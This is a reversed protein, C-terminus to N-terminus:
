LIRKQVTTKISALIKQFEELVMSIIDRSKCGTVIINGSQFILFTINNCVCKSNCFCKGSETQNLKYIFKVGSYKEPKYECLYNMETLKDYLRQRNIQYNLDFFINICNIDSTYNEISVNSSNFPDCSYNYELCNPMENSNHMKDLYYIIKGIVISKDGDYYILRYPQVDYHITNDFHINSNKKYLKLKNKALEIKTYGIYEGNLNLISKTRKMEMKISIFSKTFPDITYSKKNINYVQTNEKNEKYGIIQIPESQSYIMNNSDLYVGDSDKVILVTDHKTKLEMLKEMILEIVMQPENEHKIGTLHLSGNGFLKVNVINGSNLKLIISIQNYFLTTKVKNLNKTKSKTCSYEGKLIITTNCNYKIGLISNDIQLYKGINDLNLCIKKNYSVSATMTSIKYEISPEM